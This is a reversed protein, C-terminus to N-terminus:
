CQISHNRYKQTVKRFIFETIEKEINCKSCRKVDHM